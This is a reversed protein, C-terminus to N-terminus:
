SASVDGIEVLRQAEKRDKAFFFTGADVHEHWIAALDIDDFGSKRFYLVKALRPRLMVMFRTMLPWFNHNRVLPVEVATGDNDSISIGLEEALAYAKSRTLRPKGEDVYGHGIAMFATLTKWKDDKVWICFREAQLVAESRTM